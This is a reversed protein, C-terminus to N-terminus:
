SEKLHEANLYHLSVTHTWCRKLGWHNMPKLKDARFRSLVFVLSYVSLLVHSKINTQKKPFLANSHTEWWFVKGVKHHVHRNEENAEVCQKLSGAWKVLWWTNQDEFVLRSSCVSRLCESWLSSSRSLGISGICWFLLIQIPFLFSEQSRAQLFQEVHVFFGSLFTPLNCNFVLLVWFVKINALFCKRSSQRWGEFSTTFM